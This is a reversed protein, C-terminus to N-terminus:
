NQYIHNSNRYAPKDLYWDMYSYGDSMVWNDFALHGQLISLTEPSIYGDGEVTNIYGHSVGPFIDYVNEFAIITAKSQGSEAGNGALTVVNGPVNYGTVNAVLGSSVPLQIGFGNKYGAGVAQVHLTAEIAVIDNNANAIQNFNYDIVMDNFDYDGKSPWKDEFALSGTENEGPYYNDFAKDPDNPYDDSYDGVGDNDADAMTPYMSPTNGYAAAAVPNTTVYFIADNFDDDSSGGRNLDEFGILFLERIPDHLLVNHQKLSATMEPNIEDISYYRQATQSIYGSTKWGNAILAWGIITGAPFTGLHVKNGSALGGGSGAYSVNPYVIHLTDIQSESFPINYQDYTYYALVNKYGAGEHVFTVWVDATEALVTNTEMSSALYEPHANPVPALEPLANNIDTLFDSSIPDNQPMLYDPVGYPTTFTGLYGFVPDYLVSSGSKMTSKTSMGQGVIINFDNSTLAYSLGTPVGIHRTDVFISDWYDRLTFQTYFVGNEKTNGTVVRKASAYNDGVLLEVRVGPLPNGMNDVTQVNAVIEKSADFTFNPAAVLDDMHQVNEPMAPETDTKKKCSNFSIFLAIILIAAALKSTKM